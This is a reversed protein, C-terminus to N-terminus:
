ELTDTTKWLMWKAIRPDWWVNHWISKLDSKKGKRLVLHETELKPIM